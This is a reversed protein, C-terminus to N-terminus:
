ACLREGDAGRDHARRSWERGGGRKGQRGGEREGERRWGGGGAKGKGEVMGREGLRLSSPALLAM